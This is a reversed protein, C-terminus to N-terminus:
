CSSARGTSSGSWTIASTPSGSTTRATSRLGHAKKVLGNGWSRLYKGDRDFVVIPPESRHFVFVRDASDTAVASVQGFTIHSPLEPWGSVVRYDLAAPSPEEGVSVSAALAGLSLLIAPLVMKRVNMISSWVSEQIPSCILYPGNRDRASPRKGVGTCHRVSGSDGCGRVQVVHHGAASTRGASRGLVVAGLETSFHSEPILGNRYPALLDGAEELAAARHDVVIRARRVTGSPIEIMDPRYSGIANIHAGPPLDHDEFVPTTSSTATCVVDADKIAASPSEAREVSLGLQQSMEGAFREAAEANRSYVRARGISRVCCVAELQTRAQVGTGILPQMATDARALLDTALGSAAGTRIATLCAGDVVALPTGTTGDTLIVTSQVLPLGRPPNDDYVTVMKLSFMKQTSSHCPMILAAGHEAPADLRLRTPM